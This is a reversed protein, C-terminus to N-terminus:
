NYSMGRLQDLLMMYQVREQNTARQGAEDAESKALCCLNSKPVAGLQDIIHGVERLESAAKLGAQKKKPWSCPLM